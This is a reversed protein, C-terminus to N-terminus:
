SNVVAPTRNRTMTVPNEYCIPVSVGTIPSTSSTAPSGTMGFRAPATTRVSAVSADLQEILSDEIRM